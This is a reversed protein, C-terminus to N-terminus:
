ACEVQRNGIFLSILARGNPWEKRDTRNRYVFMSRHLMPEAM